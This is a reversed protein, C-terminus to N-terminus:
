RMPKSLDVGVGEEKRVEDGLRSKEEIIVVRGRSQYMM